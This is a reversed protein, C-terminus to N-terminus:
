FLLLCKFYELVYLPRGWKLKKLTKLPKKFFLNKLTQFVTLLIFILNWMEGLILCSCIKVIGSNYNRQEYVRGIPKYM